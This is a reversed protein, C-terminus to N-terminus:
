EIRERVGKRVVRRVASGSRVAPIATGHRPRTLFVEFSSSLSDEHWAPREPGHELDPLRPQSNRALRNKALRHLHAHQFLAFPNPQRAEESPVFNTVDERRFRRGIAFPM